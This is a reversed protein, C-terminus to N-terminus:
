LSENIVKHVAVTMAILLLVLCILSDVREVTGTYWGLQELLWRFLTVLMIVTFAPKYVWSPSELLFMLLVLAAYIWDGTPWEKGPNVITRAEVAISIVLSFIYIVFGIFHVM